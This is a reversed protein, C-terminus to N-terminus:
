SSPLRGALRCPCALVRALVFALPGALPGAFLQRMGRGAAGGWEYVAGSAGLALLLWPALGVVRLWAAGPSSRSGSV